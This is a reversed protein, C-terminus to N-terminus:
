GNINGENEPVVIVDFSLSVKPSDPTVSHINPIMIVPDEQHQGEIIPASLSVKLNTIAMDGIHEQDLDGTEIARNAKAVASQFGAMLDSVHVPALELQRDEETNTRKNKEASTDYGNGNM